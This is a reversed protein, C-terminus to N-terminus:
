GERIEVVVKCDMTAPIIMDTIEMEVPIEITPVPFPRRVVLAVMNENVAVTPESM